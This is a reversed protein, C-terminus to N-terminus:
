ILPASSSRVIKTFILSLQSPCFHTVSTPSTAYGFKLSRLKEFKSINKKRVPQTYTYNDSCHSASNMSQTYGVWKFINGSTHKLIETSLSFDTQMTMSINICVSLHVLLLDSLAYIEQPLSSLLLITHTPTLAPTWSPLFFFITRAILFCIM